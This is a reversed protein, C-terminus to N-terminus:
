GEGGGDVRLRATLAPQSSGGVMVEFEGPEVAWRFDADLLRLDRPGLVFTVTCREGPRLHVRQFARLEREPRVVSSVLDNIYLQVVEDGARKGANRVDVTVTARGYPPITEPEISMGEYEFSTYSLGHGFAFQPERDLDIYEKTGFPLANYYLPLQGVSKPFTVPLRGAPNYDGFLAEAVAKGGQEGPFWANLTAPVNAAEWPLTIARGIQLVLVTPTGTSHVARVLEAQRGPLSLDARDRGEGCTQRSDGVCVVAVDAMRATEVAEQLDDDGHNWGFMVRIGSHDRRYEIRVSYARGAEFEFPVSSNTNRHPGQGWADVPQEGDIWLRMSDTSSTGLHGAFSQEPCFSGTWRVSTKTASMEHLPKTFAWNFDIQEDVRVAVPEGALDLNDFYEGRLGCGGGPPTLLRGPVPELEGPLFGTGKAYLIRTRPSVLARVGDLVTVPEFGWITPTYDGMCATAAGPGVVAVTGISKSLPLLDGDNKLLCLGERATQLALEIHERCRVRRAVLAPDTYPDDFLGLLFKVRLISAVARDVAEEPLRGSEVLGVIARRYEEHDFDYYQMDLGAGVAQRIAEEASVATRHADRLRRVAGLDSRVFGRFGWEGRLVDTLLGRHASCPIGDISNYSCMIAMAGGEVVAAEFVPLYDTRLERLGVHAPACNLGGQPIGHVAFHKPEAVISTDRALDDGQMGRVMAVAMRSALCTDEGYTEEMRGWRPDRALDLVPSFSEHIGYARLEAAIAAGVKRVTEPNWTSALTIAQPFITNGPGCLGHLGEESFLIPIALRTKTLAYEQLQNIPGADPPYLDHICGVGTDGLVADVKDMVLNGDRAMATAHTPFTRDVFSACGHIQDMQCAKEELTMRGLLDRVREEIPVNPDRSPLPGGGEETPPMDIENM